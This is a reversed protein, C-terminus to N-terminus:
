LNLRVMLAQIASPNVGSIRRAQGLTLPKIENLKEIEEHSLTKIKSYDFDEPIKANELRSMKKIKENERIM